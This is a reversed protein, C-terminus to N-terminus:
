DSKNILFDNYVNASAPIDFIFRRSNIGQNTIINTLDFIVTEDGITKGEMRRILRTNPDISLIIERFGESVSRRTLRLKIVHERSNPDLPVPHPSILYSPVYNRRLTNLGQTNTSSTGSRRTQNVSQTLVANLEPIYVTLTESNFLIMQQAPQTFDMRFTSPSSYSITGAMNSDGSRIAINAQFDRVEIFRNSVMELYREATIIEQGSLLNINLLLLLIYINQKLM